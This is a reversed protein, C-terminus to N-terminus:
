RCLKVVCEVHTTQPFMDFPQIRDIRYGSDRLIALDRALTAPDCSIYLVQKPQLAKLRKLVHEDCGKRPPNLIVIDINKAKQIYQETNDCIFTVNDIHNLIANAKADTIAEPVCEVGTVHKAHQAFFLSLTGVGCYADLLTEDGKLDAFEIAKSYLQIAQDPNVQFFSAPSVKFQLSGLKEQISDNGMLTTYDDGLIVNDNKKNCNHIIGKVQSCRELINKALPMLQSTDSSATVLIVLVEKTYIASKILLHRLEGKGTSPEYAALKSDEILQKIAQYTQDGLTCHIHCNTMEVLAHSSREYMGLTTKGHLNRIPLQIKNRYQLPSPSPLCPPVEVDTMKGIRKLANAVRQRKVELQRPYALHMLQCGGCTGFLDCPPAVRDESAKLIALLHAKGYNKRKQFLRAEVREGPLGGEVFLTYGEHRGVGEGHSGVDEIELVINQKLQPLTM